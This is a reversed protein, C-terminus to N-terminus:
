NPITTATILVFIGIMKKYHTLWQSINILSPLYALAEFLDFGDGFPGNWKISTVNPCVDSLRMMQTFTVNHELFHNCLILRNVLKDVSQKNIKFSTVFKNLQQSNALEITSYLQAQRIVSHWIHVVEWIYQFGQSKVGKIGVKSEKVTKHARSHWLRNEQNRFYAYATDEQRNDKYCYMGDGTCCKQGMNCCVKNEYLLKNQDYDFVQITSCDSHWGCFKLGKKSTCVYVDRITVRDM